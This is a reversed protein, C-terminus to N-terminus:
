NGRLLTSLMQKIEQIDNKLSKIEESQKVIIESQRKMNERNRRYAEYAEDNTDIIARSTMDRVLSEHGEVKMHKM